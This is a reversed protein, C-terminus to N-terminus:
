VGSHTRTETSTAQLPEQEMRSPGQKPLVATAQEQLVPLEAWCIALWHVTHSPGPTLLDSGRSPRRKRRRYFSLISLTVNRARELELARHLWKPNFMDQFSHEPVCHPGWDQRGTM